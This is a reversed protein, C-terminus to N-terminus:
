FREPRIQKAYGSLTPSRKVLANWQEIVKERIYRDAAEFTDFFDENQRVSEHTDEGYELTSLAPECKPSVIIAFPIEGPPNFVLEM